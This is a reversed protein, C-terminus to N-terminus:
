RHQVMVRIGFDGPPARQGPSQLGDGDSVYSVRQGGADGLPAEVARLSNTRDRDELFTISSLAATGMVKVEPPDGVTRIRLTGQASIIVQSGEPAHSLDLTTVSGPGGVTLLVANDAIEVEGESLFPRSWAVLEEQSPM